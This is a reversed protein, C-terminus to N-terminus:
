NTQVFLLRVMLKNAEVMVSVLPRDSLFRDLGLQNRHLINNNCCNM